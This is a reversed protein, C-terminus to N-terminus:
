IMRTITAGLFWAMVDPMTSVRGRRLQIRVANRYELMPISRTTLMLATSLASFQVSTITPLSQLILKLPCGISFLKIIATSFGAEM